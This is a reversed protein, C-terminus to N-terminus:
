RKTFSKKWFIGPFHACVTAMADDLLSYLVVEFNNDYSAFFEKLNNKM